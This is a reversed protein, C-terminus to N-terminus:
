SLYSPNTSGPGGTSFPAGDGYYTDKRSDAIGVFRPCLRGGEPNIVSRWTRFGGGEHSIPPKGLTTSGAGGLSSLTGNEARLDMWEPLVLEWERITFGYM